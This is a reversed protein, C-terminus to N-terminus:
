SDMSSTRVLTIRVPSFAYPWMARKAPAPANTGIVPKALETAAGAMSYWFSPCTNPIPTLINVIAPGTIKYPINVLQIRPIPYKKPFIHPSHYAAIGM